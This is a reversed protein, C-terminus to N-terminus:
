AARKSPLPRGALVDYFFALVGGAVFGVVGVTITGVVLQTLTIARSEAPILKAFDVGHMWTKFFAITLEPAVMLAVACVANLLALTVGLALAFKWVDIRNMSLEKCNGWM